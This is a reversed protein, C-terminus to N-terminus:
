AIGKFKKLIEESLLDSQKLSLFECLNNNLLLDIKEGNFFVTKQDKDVHTSIIFVTKDNVKKYNPSVEQGFANLCYSFLFLIFIFRSM